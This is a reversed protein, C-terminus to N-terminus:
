IEELETGIKDWEINEDTYNLGRMGMENERKKKKESEDDKRAKINTTIEIRDHDSLSSKTCEVNMIMSSENTYILDLTNERTPEDIIQILGFEDMQENLREFQRQEDRTAGTNNMKRKWECGGLKGRSWEVGM